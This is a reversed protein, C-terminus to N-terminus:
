MFITSISAWIVLGAIYGIVWERADPKKNVVMYIMVVAGAIFIFNVVWKVITTFGGSSGMQTGVNEGIAKLTIDKTQSYADVSLTLSSIVFVFLLIKSLKKM